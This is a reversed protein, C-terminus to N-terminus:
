KNNIKFCVYLFHLLSMQLCLTFHSSFILANKAWLLVTTERNPTQYGGFTRTLVSPADRPFKSMPGTVTVEWSVFSVKRYLIFKYRCAFFVLEHNLMFWFLGSWEASKESKWATHKKGGNNRDTHQHKQTNQHNPATCFLSSNFSSQAEKRRIHEKKM